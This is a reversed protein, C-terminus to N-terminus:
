DILGDNLKDTIYIKYSTARKSPSTMKWTFDLNKILKAQKWRTLTSSIEVGRQDYWKTKYYVTQTSPSQGQVQVFIEGDHDHIEHTKSLYTLEVDPNVSFVSRDYEIPSVCGALCLLSIGLLTKRM